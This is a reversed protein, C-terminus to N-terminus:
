GLWTTVAKGHKTQASEVKPPYSFTELLTKDLPIVNPRKTDNTVKAQRHDFLWFMRLLKLFGHQHFSPWPNIFGKGNPKHHAPLEKKKDDKNTTAM